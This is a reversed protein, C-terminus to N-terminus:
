NSEAAAAGDRLTELEEWRAFLASLKEKQASLDANLDAAQQGFKRNFDPDAFFEEIRAIEA